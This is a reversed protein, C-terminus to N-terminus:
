KKRTRVINCSISTGTSHTGTFNIVVRIYRERGLYSVTFSTTDEDAANVLAFTGTNTGTVSSSLIADTADTWDSNNDSTEVELEIYNSGSLTDASNGMNVIILAGDYDILDASTSNTDSNIILSTLAHIVTVNGHDKYQFM